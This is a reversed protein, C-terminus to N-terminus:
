KSIEVVGSSDVQDQLIGRTTLEVLFELFLDLKILLSCSCYTFLVLERVANNDLMEGKLVDCLQCVGESVAVGLFDDM